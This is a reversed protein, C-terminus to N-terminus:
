SKTNSIAPLTDIRYASNKRETSTDNVDRAGLYKVFLYYLTALPAPMGSERLMDHFLRDVRRKSVPIIHLYQYLADHILSAHHALPWLVPKSVLQRDRLTLADIRATWGDPTGVLMLWFFWRKPTCGDWAYCRRTDFDYSVKHHQRDVTSTGPNVIIVGDHIILWEAYFYCGQTMKSHVVVAADVYNLWPGERDRSHFGWKEYEKRKQQLARDALAKRQVLRPLLLGAYIFAGTVVAHLLFARHYAYLYAILVGGALTATILSSDILKRRLEIHM